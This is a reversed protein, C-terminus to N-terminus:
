ASLDSRSVLRTMTVYIRAILFAGAFPVLVLVQQRLDYSISLPQGLDLPVLCGVLFTVLVLWGCVLRSHRTLSVRRLWTFLDVCGYVILGFVIAMWSYRTVMYSFHSIGLGPEGSFLWVFRWASFAGGVSAAILVVALYPVVRGKM